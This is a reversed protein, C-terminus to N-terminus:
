EETNTKNLYPFYRMYGNYHKNDSFQGIRLLDKDYKQRHTVTLMAARANLFCLNDSIGTDTDLQQLQYSTVHRQLSPFVHKVPDLDIEMWNNKKYQKPGKIGALFGKATSRIFEFPVLELIEEYTMQDLADELEKNFRIADDTPRM